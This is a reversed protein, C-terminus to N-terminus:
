SANCMPVRLLLKRTNKKIPKPAPQAPLAVGSIIDDGTTGIAPADATEIVVVWVVCGAAVGGAVLMVGGALEAVMGGAIVVVVVVCGALEVGAIFGGGSAFGAAGDMVVVGVVVVVV